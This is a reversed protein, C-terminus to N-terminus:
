SAVSMFMTCMLRSMLKAVMRMFDIALVCRCLCCGDSQQAGSEVNAPVIYCPTHISSGDRAPSNTISNQIIRLMACHWIPILPKPRIPLNASRAAM